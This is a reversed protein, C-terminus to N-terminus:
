LQNHSIFRELPMPRCFLFGQFRVFGLSVLLSLQNETEVGEVVTDIELAKCMAVIAALMQYAKADNEVDLLFSRDIKVIDFNMNRLYSLASYGTGFDDLSVTFGCQQLRKLQEEASQADDVFVSETVELELLHCPANEISCILQLDSLFKESMLQSASMNVSIPLQVGIDVFYKIYRAASRIALLGLKDSLGHQEALPIFEMPSISGYISHNWRCLIEAGKLQRECDYKGQLHFELRDNQISESLQQVMAIRKLAARTLEEHYGQWQNKGRAKAQYMASDANRIITEVDTGHVPFVAVGVSISLDLAYESFEFHYQNVSSLLANVEEQWEYSDTFPFIAVFEDGGWRALLAQKNLSVKLLAAVEQLILDGATHGFSDNVDKFGDLDIFFAAFQEDHQELFQQKLVNILTTRNMLGTLVDYHALRHLIRESNKRETLDKFTAIIFQEKSPAYSFYHFAAEVTVALGNINLECEVAIGDALMAETPVYKPDVYNLLSAEVLKGPTLTFLADFRSNTQYIEWKVNLIMMPEYSEEFARSMLHSSKELRFADTVDKATGAARIAEGQHNAEIVKGRLQIYRPSGSINQQYVIDIEHSEGLAIQQLRRDILQRDTDKIPELFQALTLVHKCPEQHNSKHEQISVTASSIHLEWISLSSAWLASDILKKAAKTSEHALYVERTKSMLLREAEKRAAREREYRRKYADFQEDLNVM